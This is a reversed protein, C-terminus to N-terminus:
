SLHMPILVVYLCTGCIRCHHAREPKSPEVGSITPCKKCTRAQSRQLRQQHEPSPDNVPMPAHKKTQLAKIAAQRKTRQKVLFYNCLAPQERKSGDRPSGASVTCSMYYHFCFAYVLYTSLMTGFLSILWPTNPQWFVDRFVVDFYVVICVGLLIWAFAVFVPGTVGTQWNTNLALLARRVAVFRYRSRWIERAAQLLCLRRRKAKALGDTKLRECALTM